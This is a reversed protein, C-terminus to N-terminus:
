PALWDRTVSLGHDEFYALVESVLWVPHSNRHSGLKRAAPFRADVYDPDYMMRGTQTRSYPWGMLKLDRWGVILPKVNSMATSWIPLTAVGETLGCAPLLRCRQEPYKLSFNITFEVTQM